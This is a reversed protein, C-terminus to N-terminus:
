GLEVELSLHLKEEIICFHIKQHNFHLIKYNSGARASYSRVIKPSEFIYPLHLFFFWM